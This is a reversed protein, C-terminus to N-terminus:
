TPQFLAVDFSLNVLLDFSGTFIISGHELEDFLDEIVLRKGVSLEFLVLSSANIACTAAAAPFFFIRWITLSETSVVIPWICYVRLRV